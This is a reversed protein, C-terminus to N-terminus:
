HTSTAVLLGVRDGDAVGLVGGAGVEAEGGGGEGGEHRAHLALLEPRGSGGSGRLARCTRHTRSRWRTATEPLAPCTGEREAPRPGHAPM